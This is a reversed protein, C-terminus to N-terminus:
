WGQKKAYEIAKDYGRNVSKKIWSKAISEDKEVGRGDM